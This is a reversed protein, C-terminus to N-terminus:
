SHRGDDVEDKRTSADLGAIQLAREAQTVYVSPQLQGRRMKTLTMFYLAIVLSPLDGQGNDTKGDLGALQLVTM